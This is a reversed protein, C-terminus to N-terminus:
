HLCIDPFSHNKLKIQLNCEVFFVNLSFDPSVCLIGLMNLEFILSPSMKVLANKSGTLGNAV